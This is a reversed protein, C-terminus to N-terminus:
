ELSRVVPTPRLNDSSGPSAFREQTSISVKGVELCLRSVRKVTAFQLVESSLLRWCGPQAWGRPAMFWMSSIRDSICLADGLWALLMKEREREGDREIKREKETALLGWCARSIIHKNQSSCHLFPSSILSKSLGLRNKYDRCVNPRLHTGATAGREARLPSSSNSHAHTYPDALSYCYHSFM